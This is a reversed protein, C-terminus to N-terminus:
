SAHNKGQIFIDGAQALSLLKYGWLLPKSNACHKEAISSLIEELELYRDANHRGHDGTLFQRAHEMYSTTYSTTEEPTLGILIENRKHGPTLARTETLYAREDNTFSFM